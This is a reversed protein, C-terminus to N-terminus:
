PQEESAEVEVQMQDFSRDSASHRASDRTFAQWRRVITDVYRPDLELGYCRRGTREAAIVTTGSGCFPDLVVDNRASCDMVADAVLAVPKVTPHLALLNGEEGIRGFSNISPYTWVNTRNRGYRGLMVNNRHPGHGSLFAAILEHQSRYFSGMGANSKVWVCLNKLENYTARGAALLEGLHRWDMCIFHISGSTSHDRMLSFSRILFLTFDAESMEGSAMVFERHQFSGLGSVNGGIKVNYPPDSFVMAAKRDNMLEAYSSLELASGCYIRHEGLYWLDGLRSVPPGSSAPVVDESEHKQGNLSDIRLDIEGTDLGTVELDFDLDLCALDQLQEALLDDDWTANETLRNDAIMFARAQAESLHDLRITPAENWGLLQAALVRGHGAIVKLTADVLVPCNFGFAEISHAIQRIQKPRHLRPNKPDLRLQDIRRYIVAVHGAAKDSVPQSRAARRKSATDALQDFSSGAITKTPSAGM